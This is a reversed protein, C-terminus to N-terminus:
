DGHRLWDQLRRQTDWKHQAGPDRRFLRLLGPGHTRLLYRIRKPIQWLKLNGGATLVTVGYRLWGRLGGQPLDRWMAPLLVNEQRFLAALAQELVGDPPPPFNGALPLEEWSVGRAWGWLATMLRIHPGLQQAIMQARLEAWADADWAQVWRSFDYLGRLGMDLGHKELAHVSIYLAHDVPALMLLGPLEAIPRTRSWLAADAQLAPLIEMANCHLEVRLRGAPPQLPPLHGARSEPHAVYGRAELAAGLRRACEESSALLDLDSFPRAEPYPYARATVPGKLLILPIELEQAMSSIERLQQEARIHFIGAHLRADRLRKQLDDPLRQEDAALFAVTPSMGHHRATELLAPWMEADPPTDRWLYAVLAEEPPTLAYHPDHTNM